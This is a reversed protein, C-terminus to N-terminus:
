QPPEKRMEWGGGPKRRFWREGKPEQGDRTLVEPVYYWGGPWNTIPKDTVYKFSYLAQVLVRVNNNVNGFDM